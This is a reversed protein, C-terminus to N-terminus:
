LSKEKEAVAAYQTKQRYQLPPVGYKRRFCRSFYFQDYFGTQEAVTQINAASNELQVAAINLRHDILFASPTTGTEQKFHRLFASPSLGCQAALQAVSLKEAYHSRLYAIAPYVLSATPPKPMATQLLLSLVSFGVAQRRCAGALTDDETLLADIYGSMMANYASPLCVPFDFRDDQTYVSQFQAQLYLWKMHMYGAAPDVHHVIDQMAGAPAIFAHGAPIEQPEGGDLAITYRGVVAMVVSLFPLSKVHRLGDETCIGGTAKLYTITMDM